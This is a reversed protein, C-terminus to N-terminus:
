MYDKFDELPEDFGNSISILDRDSGFLPARPKKPPMVSSKRNTTRDSELFEGIKQWEGRDEDSLAALFEKMMKLKEEHNVPSVERVEILVECGDPINFNASLQINKGQKIGKVQIPESKLVQRLYIASILDSWTFNEPLRDILSRVEEKLNITEM